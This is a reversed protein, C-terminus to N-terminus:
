LPPVSLLLRGHGATGFYLTAGAGGYRGIPGGRCQRVSPLLRGRGVTGGLQAARASGCRCFSGGEGRRYSFFLHRIAAARVSLATSGRRVALDPRVAMATGVALVAWDGGTCFFLHEIVATGASLATWAEGYRWIPDGRDQRVALLLRGLGVPVFFLPAKYRRCPCCSGDLGWRVSIFLHGIAAARVSLATSGPPRLGCHGTRIKQAAARGASLWRVWYHAAGPLTAARLATAPLRAAFSRRGKGHANACPHAGKAARVAARFPPSGPQRRREAAGGGGHRAAALVARGNGYRWIPGGLRQRALPFPRGLGSTGDFQAAWANGYRWFAAPKARSL